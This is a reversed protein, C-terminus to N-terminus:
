QECNGAVLGLCRTRDERNVTSLDLAYFGIEFSHVDIASNRIGRRRNFCKAPLSRLRDDWPLAHFNGIFEPMGTILSNVIGAAIGGLPTVTVFRGIALVAEVQIDPGGGGTLSVLLEGDSEPNMAAAVAFAPAGFGLKVSLFPSVFVDHEDGDVITEAYESEEGMRVKGLFAGIVNGAVVADKVLDFGEFPDLFVDGM